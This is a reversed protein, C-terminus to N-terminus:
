IIEKMIKYGKMLLSATASRSQLVSNRTSRQLGKCLKLTWVDLTHVHVARSLAHALPTAGAYKDPLQRLTHTHSVTHTHTQARIHARTREHIAVGQTHLGAGRGHIMISM